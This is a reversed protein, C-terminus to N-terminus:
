KALGDFWKKVFVCYNLVNEGPLDATSFFPRAADQDKKMTFSLEEGKWAAQINAATVAESSSVAILKGETSIWVYHPILTHPFLKDLITDNVVAPLSLKGKKFAV